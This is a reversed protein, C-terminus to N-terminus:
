THVEEDMPIVSTWKSKQEALIIKTSAIRDITNLMDVAATAGQAGSEGLLYM